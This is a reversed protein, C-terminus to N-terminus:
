VSSSVAMTWAMAFIGPQFSLCTLILWPPSRWSLGRAARCLHLLGRRVRVAGGTPCCTMAREAAASHGVLLALVTMSAATTGSAATTLPQHSPLSLSVCRNQSSDDSVEAYPVLQPAPEDRCSRQDQQLVFGAQCRCCYSRPISVCHHECGRNGETCLDLASSIPLDAQGGTSCKEARVACSGPLKKCVGIGPIDRTAWRNLSWVRLAPPM